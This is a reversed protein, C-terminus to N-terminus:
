ELDFYFENRVETEFKMEEEKSTGKLRCCNVGFEGLALVIFSKVATITVM